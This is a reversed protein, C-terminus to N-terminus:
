SQSHLSPAHPLSISSLHHFQSHTPSSTNFYLPPHLSQPTHLSNSPLHHFLFHLPSSPTSSLLITLLHLPNPHLPPPSTPFQTSPLRHLLSYPQPLTSDLPLPTTSIPSHPPFQADLFSAFQHRQFFYPLSYTPKPTHHLAAPRIPPHTPPSTSSSSPAKLREREEETHSM